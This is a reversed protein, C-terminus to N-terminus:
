DHFFPFLRRSWRYGCTPDSQKSSLLWYLPLNASPLTQKIKSTSSPEQGFALEGSGVRVILSCSSKYVSPPPQRCFCCLWSQCGGQFLDHLPWILTRKITKLVTLRRKQIPKNGNRSVVEQFQSLKQGPHIRTMVDNADEGQYPNWCRYSLECSIAWLIM